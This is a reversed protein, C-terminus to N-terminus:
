DVIDRILKLLFLALLFLQGEYVGASIQDLGSLHVFLLSWEQSVELVVEV